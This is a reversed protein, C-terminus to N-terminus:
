RKFGRVNGRNILGTGKFAPNLPSKSGRTSSTQTHKITKGPM